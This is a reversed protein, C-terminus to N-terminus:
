PREKVCCINFTRRGLDGVDTVKFGADELVTKLETFTTHVKGSSAVPDTLVANLYDFVFVGDDKLATHLYRLSDRLQAENLRSLLIGRSIVVDYSSAPLDLKRADVCFLSRYAGKTRAVALMRPAFDAGDFLWPRDKGAHRVLDMTAEGTGCGLDLFTLSANPDTRNLLASALFTNFRAYGAERNTYHQPDSIETDWSAARENWKEQDWHSEGCGSTQLPPLKPNLIDSVLFAEVHEFVTLSDKEEQYVQFHDSLTRLLPTWGPGILVIPVDKSIFGMLKATWVAMLEGLTGIGGNFVVFLRCDEILAEIRRFLGDAEIFNADEIFTNKSEFSWDKLGVGECVGAGLHAGAAVAEMMGAYGGSRLRYGKEALVRGLLIGQQYEFDTAKVRRGGFVVAVPEKKPPRIPQAKVTSVRNKDSALRAPIFLQKERNGAARHGTYGSYTVAFHENVITNASM